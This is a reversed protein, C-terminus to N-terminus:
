GGLKKNAKDMFKAANVIVREHVGVGIVGKDDCAEVDFVLRRGDIDRLTSKATINMGVPSASIHEINIKTGVSSNEDDLFDRVAEVSAAEMAAIMMPTSFVKLTGSLVAAATNDETVRVTFKGVAGKEMIEREKLFYLRCFVATQLMGTIYIIM